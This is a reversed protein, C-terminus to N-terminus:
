EALRRVLRNFSEGAQSVADMMNPDLEDELPQTDQLTGGAGLAQRTQTTRLRDALFLSLANYFRAAFGINEALEERMDEKDIMLVKAAGNATVTASPPASDVFSMEGVIEGPNLIAVTGLGAVSVDLHGDILIFLDDSDLGQEILAEGNPATRSRGLRVMWDIDQDNLKGLIYLVKRM